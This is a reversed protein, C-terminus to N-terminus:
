GAATPDVYITDRHVEVPLTTLALGKRGKGDLGFHREACDIYGGEVVELPCGPAEAVAVPRGDETVGLFVGAFAERATGPTVEDITFAEVPEFPAGPEKFLLYTVVLLIVLGVAISAVVWQIGLTGRFPGLPGITSGSKVGPARIHIPRSPVTVM